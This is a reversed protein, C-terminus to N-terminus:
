CPVSLLNPVHLWCTKIIDTYILCEYHTVKNIRKVYNLHTCQKDVLSVSQEAKKLGM